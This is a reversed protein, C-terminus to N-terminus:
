HEMHGRGIGRDPVKKIDSVSRQKLFDRQAEVLPAEPRTGWVEAVQWNGERGDIRLWKGVVAKEKPIWAVDFRYSGKGNPQVLKCQCSMREKSKSKSV